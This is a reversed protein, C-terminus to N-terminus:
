VESAFNCKRDTTCLNRQQAGGIYSGLTTGASNGHSHTHTHAHTRTNCELAHRSSDNLVTSTRALFNARTERNGLKTGSNSLWLIAARFLM